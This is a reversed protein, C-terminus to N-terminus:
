KNEIKTLTVTVETFIPGKIVVYLPIRKKALSFYAEIKGKEVKKGKLTAFPRILVAIQKKKGLAPVRLQVKSNIVGYFKYNSENNCVNYEVRDGVNIPLLMFYYYATLVDHVGPPIQFNKESKDLFNEFYATHNLQDFETVADKKYSGDRRYVEHRLTYMKEVDMYSVFRDDIKYIKSLFANTKMTAELLYADRGKFNAIGKISTTLTGIPIGLWKVQYILKEYEPLRSNPTNDKFNQPERPDNNDQNKNVSIGNLVSCGNLFFILILSVQIDKLLRM